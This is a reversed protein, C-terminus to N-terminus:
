LLLFAQQTSTPSLFSSLFFSCRSHLLSSCPIQDRDPVHADFRCPPPKFIVEQQQSDCNRNCCAPDFEAHAVNVWPRHRRSTLPSYHHSSHKRGSSKDSHTTSFVKASRQMEGRKETSKKKRHCVFCLCITIYVFHVQGINNKHWSIYNIGM